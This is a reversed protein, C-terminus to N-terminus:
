LSSQTDQEKSSSDIGVYHSPSSVTLDDSHSETPTPWWCQAYNSKIVFLLLTLIMLLLHMLMCKANLSMSYDYLYCQHIHKWLQLFALTHKYM